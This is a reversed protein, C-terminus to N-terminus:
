RAWIVPAAALQEVSGDKASVTWAIVAGYPLEGPQFSVDGGFPKMLGMEGTLVTKGLENPSKGRDTVKVLVTGEFATARGEIHLPSTVTQGAAPTDLVLGDARASVVSWRDSTGLKRLALTTRLTGHDAVINVERGSNELETVADPTMGAFLSLFRTAVAIPDTTNFGPDIDKDDAESGTVYPWIAIPDHYNAPVITTTTHEPGPNTIVRQKDGSDDDLLPMAIGVAALVVVIAAGAKLLRSRRDLRRARSRVDDFSGPRLPSDDHLAERLLDEPTRSM